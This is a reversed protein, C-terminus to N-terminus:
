SWSKPGQNIEEGDHEDRKNEGLNLLMKNKEIEKTLLKEEYNIYPQDQYLLKSM